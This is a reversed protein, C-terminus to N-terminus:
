GRGAAGNFLTQELSYMLFPDGATGRLTSLPLKSGQALHYYPCSDGPAKLSCSSLLKHSLSSLCSLMTLAMAQRDKECPNHLVYVRHSHSLM